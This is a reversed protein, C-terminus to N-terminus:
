RVPAGALRSAWARARDIEGARLPGERGEVIFGEPPAAPHGGKSRLAAAIKPAAFGILNLLLRLPLGSRAPDIRTDFAAIRKGGLAGAQLGDLMQKVKATPRGGQTPSGVVIVEAAEIEAPRVADASRLQVEPRFGEAIAEAIRATNGYASDYIVLAKM